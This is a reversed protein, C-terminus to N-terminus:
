SLGTSEKAALNFFINKQEQSDTRLGTGAQSEGDGQRLGKLPTVSTRRRRAQLLTPTSREGGSSLPDLCTWMKVGIRARGPSLQSCFKSILCSLFGCNVVGFSSFWYKLVSVNQFCRSGVCKHRLHNKSCLKFHHCKLLIVSIKTILKSM